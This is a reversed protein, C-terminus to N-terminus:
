ASAGAQILVDRRRAVTTGNALTFETEIAVTTMEGGRRGTRTAIDGVRSKATITDGATVPGVATWSAEGHLLRALDAGIEIAQSLAGDIRWHDALVWVTPLMPVASFGAAKAADADWWVPNDDGLARALEALKSAELPFTITTLATGELDPGITM